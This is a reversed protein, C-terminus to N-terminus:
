SHEKGAPTPVVKGESTLFLTASRQSERVTVTYVVQGAKTSRAAM